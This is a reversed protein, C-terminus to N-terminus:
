EGEKPPEPLPMWHTVTDCVKVGFWENYITRCALEPENIDGDWAIVTEHVEPLRDNVSIWEAM